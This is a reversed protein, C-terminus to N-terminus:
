TPTTSVDTTDGKGLLQTIDSFFLAGRSHAIVSAQEVPGMVGTENNAAMVAVVSVSDDVLENLRSLDLLGSHDVSAIRVEGAALALM